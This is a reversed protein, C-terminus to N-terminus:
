EEASDDGLKYKTKGAAIERLAINLPRDDKEELPTPSGANIQRARTAAAVVLEYLNDFLTPLKRLPASESTVPETSAAEQKRPETVKRHKKPTM